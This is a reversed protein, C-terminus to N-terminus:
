AILRLSIHVKAFVFGMSLIFCWSLGHMLCKITNHVYCFLLEIVCNWLFTTWTSLVTLNHQLSLVHWHLTKSHFHVLGFSALSEHSIKHNFDMSILIKIYSLIREILFFFFFLFPFVWSKNLIARCTHSSKFSDSSVPLLKCSTLVM